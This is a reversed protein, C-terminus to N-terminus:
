LHKLPMKNLCIKSTNPHTLILIKACRKNTPIYLRNALVRKYQYLDNLLSTDKYGQHWLKEDGQLVETSSKEM